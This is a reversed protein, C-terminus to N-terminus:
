REGKMWRARVGLKRLADREIQGVRAHSIGLLPAIERVTLEGAAEVVELTCREDGGLWQRCARGVCPGPGRETPYRCPQALPLHLLPATAYEGSITM